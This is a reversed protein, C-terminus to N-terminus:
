VEGFLKPCIGCTGGVALSLRPAVDKVVPFKRSLKAIVSNISRNCIIQATLSTKLEIRSRRNQM